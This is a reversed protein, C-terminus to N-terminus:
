SLIKRSVVAAGETTPAHARLFQDVAYRVWTERQEATRVPLGMRRRDSELGFLMGILLEAAATSDDVVIEGQASAMELRQALRQVLAQTSNLYLTRAGLPFRDAEAVLRRSIDTARDDLWRDLHERGYAELSARIDRGDFDLMQRLPEILNIVAAEFLRDKTGFHTYVTQKAVGARRAVEAMNVQYGYEVFLASAADIISQTRPNIAKEM